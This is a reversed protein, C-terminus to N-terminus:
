FCRYKIDLGVYSGISTISVTYVRANRSRWLPHHPFNTPDKYEASSASGGGAHLSSVWTWRWLYLLSRGSGSLLNKTGMMMLM